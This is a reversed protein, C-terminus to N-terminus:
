VAGKPHEYCHCIRLTKIGFIRNLLLKLAMHHVFDLM